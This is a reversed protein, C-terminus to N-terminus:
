AQRAAHYDHAAWEVRPESMFGLAVAAAGLRVGARRHYDLAARLQLPTLAGIDVLYRGFRVTGAPPQVEAQSGSALRRARPADTETKADIDLATVKPLPVSFSCGVTATAAPLKEVAVTPQISSDVPQNSGELLDLLGRAPGDKCRLAHRLFTKAADVKGARIALEGLLRYAAGAAPHWRLARSLERKAEGDRRLAMLARARLIRLNLNDPDCELAEACMSAASGYEHAHFLKEAAERVSSAHV